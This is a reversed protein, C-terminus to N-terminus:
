GYFAVVVLSAAGASALQATVIAGSLPSSAAAQWIEADGLAGNARASLSWALNGGTVSTVTQSGFQPGDCMVFALVLDNAQSTTLAPSAVTSAASGQHTAVWQDLGLGSVAQGVRSTPDELNTCGAALVLLLPAVKNPM